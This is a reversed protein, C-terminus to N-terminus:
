FFGQGVQLFSTSVGSGGPTVPTDAFTAMLMVWEVSTDSTGPANYTGTASVVRDEFYNVNDINDHSTYSAGATFGVVATANGFYGLLLENAVTTTVNGSDPSVGTGTASATQDLALTTALGSYEDSIGRMYASAGSVAVTVRNTNNTALLNMAYYIYYTHGSGDAKSVAPQWNNGDLDTVTVTRGTTYSQIGIVALNGATWTSGAPTQSSTADQSFGGHGVVFAIAM